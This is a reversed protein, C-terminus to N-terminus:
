KIALSTMKLQNEQIRYFVSDGAPLIVTAEMGGFTPTHPPSSLKAQVQQNTPNHVELLPAEGSEQGDVVLTLKLAPNDTVFPNGIWVHDANTIDEQLWATGDEVPVFRFWPQRSSYIAAVGNDQVGHVKIPLWIPLEQPGLTEAIENHDAKLTLFYTADALSGSKLDLPYGDHGGGFNFGQALGQLRSEIETQDKSNDELNAFGYAYHMVTGAKVQQGAKGLGIVIGPMPLNGQYVFENDPPALFVQYGVPSPAQTVYGGPKIRGSFDSPSHGDWPIMQAGHDADSIMVMKGYGPALTQVQESTYANPNWPQMVVLKIPVAGSLTVDKTFRIDGEHWIVTGQDQATGEHARRYNFIVYYDARSDAGVLKDTRTFFANEGQDRAIDGYENLVGVGHARGALRDMHMTMEIMQYSNVGMQLVDGLKAHLKGPDPYDPGFERTSITEASEADPMPGMPAGDWGNLHISNTWHPATELDMLRDPCLMFGHSGLMNLNDGCRFMERKYNYVLGECSFARKGNKDIVELLLDHREDHVVEFEHQLEKAGQPLYRRIIGREGDHVLVERLGADATVDLGVRVRQAGRTFAWDSEMQNNNVRWTKIIPGQSVCIAREGCRDFHVQDLNPATAFWLAAARAVESPDDLITYAMPTNWRLDAMGHLWETINDAVLDTRGNRLDYVLPLYNWFWWMNEPHQDRSRFDKYNLLAMGPLNCYISYSGYLQVQRGDWQTYTKNNITITPPPFKVNWGWIAWRNGNSDTFQMGPCAYFGADSAATCDDKEKQWTEATLKEMPDGFVIFGLGAAKAAQVYDAVTGKGGGYNSIVGGIGRYKDFGSGGSLGSAPQSFTSQDWDVSEPLQVPKYAVPQYTGLEPIDTAPEGLWRYSQMELKLTDSPQNAGSDGVTDVVDPWIPVGYNLDMHIAAIPFSVVRGKGLERVAVVPANDTYHGPMDLNLFTPNGPTGCSFSKGGKGASVVVQWDPGYDVAPVGPVPNHDYVPLYLRRVGQTIPHPSIATTYWYEPAPRYSPLIFRQNLNMVGEFRIQIGLPALVMNWFANNNSNPYREAEEQVFLGGGAEVYRRLAAGLVKAHAQHAPDMSAGEIPVILRVVHCPKLEDFIQQETPGPDFFRNIWVPQIHYQRYVPLLPNYKQFEANFRSGDQWPLGVVITPEQAPQTVPAADGWARPLIGGLVCLCLCWLFAKNCM